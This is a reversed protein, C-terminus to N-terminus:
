TTERLEQPSIRPKYRSVAWSAVGERTRESVHSAMMGNHIHDWALYSICNVVATVKNFLRASMIVFYKPSNCYLIRLKNLHIYNEM